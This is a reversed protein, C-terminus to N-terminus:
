VGGTMYESNVHSSRRSHRWSKLIKLMVVIAHGIKFSLMCSLRTESHMGQFVPAVSISPNGKLRFFTNILQLVVGKIGWVTGAAVASSSAEGLGIASHWEFQSIKIKKLFGALILYLQHVHKFIEKFTEYQQKLKKFTIKKKKEKNKGITKKEEERVKFSHDEADIQVLPIHLKYKIIRYMRITIQIDNNDNRHVLHLTINLTSFMLIIFIFLLIGLIILIWEM